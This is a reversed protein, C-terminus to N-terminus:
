QTLKFGTEAGTVEGLSNEDVYQALSCTLRAVIAGHKFGSPSMNHPDGKRRLEGRVLEYGAGDNPMRYLEDATALRTVTSM